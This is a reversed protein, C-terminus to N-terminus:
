FFRCESEYLRKETYPIQQHAFPSQQAQSWTFDVMCLQMSANSVSGYWNCLHIGQHTASGKASSRVVFKKWFPWLNPVCVQRVILGKFWEDKICCNHMNFERPLLCLIFANTLSLVGVSIYVGLYYVGVWVYVTMHLFPFVCPSVHGSSYLRVRTICVCM